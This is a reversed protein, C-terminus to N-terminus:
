DRPNERSSTIPCTVGWWDFIQENGGGLFMGRDTSEGGVLTLERGGGSFLLKWTIVWYFCCKWSCDNNRSLKQKLKMSMPCLPMNVKIKTSTWYECFATKLKSFLKFQCFWEEEPERWRTFFNEGLLIELERESPSNEGM